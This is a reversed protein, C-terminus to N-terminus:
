PTPWGSLTEWTEELNERPIGVMLALDNFLDRRARQVFEFLIEYTDRSIASPGHEPIM